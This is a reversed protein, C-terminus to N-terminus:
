PAAAPTTPPASPYGAQDLASDWESALFGKLTKLSGVLLLPVEMGGDTLKKFNEVEDQQQPNKETFPAGRKKLYARAKDCVEGCNTVYLTLPFNKVAQKVSYPIDGTQISNGGIKKEEVKKINAPPPYPTYNVVGKEDVWKYIQGSYAASAIVWLAAFIIIKM